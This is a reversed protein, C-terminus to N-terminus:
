KGKKKQKKAAEKARKQQRQIIDSAEDNVKQRIEGLTSEIPFQLIGNSSYAGYKVNDSSVIYYTGAKQFAVREIYAFQVPVVKSGFLDVLGTKGNKELLVLAQDEPYARVADYECPVVFSGDFANLLGFKGDRQCSFLIKLNGIIDRLKLLQVDAFEHATKPEGYKNYFGWLGNFDRAIFFEYVGQDTVFLSNFPGALKEGGDKKFLTWEEKGEQSTKCRAVAQTKYPDDKFEIRKDYITPDNPGSTESVNTMRISNPLETRPMKAMQPMLQESPKKEPMPTYDKLKTSVPQNGRLAPDKALNRINEEYTQIKFKVAEPSSARDWAKRIFGQTKGIPCDSRHGNKRGDMRECWPCATSVGYKYEVSNFNPAWSEEKSKEKDGAAICGPAHDSVQVWQGGQKTWRAKGCHACVPDSAQPVQAMVVISGTLMLATLLIKKM